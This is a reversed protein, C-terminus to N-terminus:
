RTSPISQWAFAPWFGQAIRRLNTGDPNALYIGDKARFALQSSDPSWAPTNDVGGNVFPITKYILRKDSGDVSITWVWQVHASGPQSPHQYTSNEYALQKGNPSWASGLLSPNATGILRTLAKGDADITYIGTPTAMALERGDPSWASGNIAELSTLRTVRGTADVLWVGNYTDVALEHGDPSWQAGFPLMPATKRSEPARVPLGWLDSGDPRVTDLSPTDIVGGVRQGIRIFYIEQGDPSWQLMFWYVGTDAVGATGCARNPQCYTIQRMAGSKANVVWLNVDVRRASYRGVAIQSGDPSWSVGQCDGCATLPRPHQGDAGVLYLTLKHARGALYAFQKGNPSWAFCGAGSGAPGLCFAHDAGAWVDRLGSGDPNVFELSGGNAFAIEGNHATIGPGAPTSSHHPRLSTLAVAAVVVVVIVVALVVVADGLGRARGPWRRRDRREASREGSGRRSRRDSGAPELLRDLLDPPPNLEALESRLETRIQEILQEDSLM